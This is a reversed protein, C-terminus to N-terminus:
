PLKLAPISREFATRFASQSDCSTLPRYTSSAAQIGVAPADFGENVRIALAMRTQSLIGDGSACVIEHIIWFKVADFARWLSIRQFDGVGAGRKAGPTIM